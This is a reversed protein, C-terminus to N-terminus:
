GNVLNQGAAEYNGKTYAVMRETMEKSEDMNSSLFAQLYGTMYAYKDVNKTSKARAEVSKMFDAFIETNNM